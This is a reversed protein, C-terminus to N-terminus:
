DGRLAEEEGLSWPLNSTVLTHLDLLLLPKSFFGVTVDLLAQGTGEWYHSQPGPGAELLYPLEVRPDFGVVAQTLPLAPRTKRCLFGSPIPEGERQLGSTPSGPTQSPHPPLVGSSQAAPLGRDM